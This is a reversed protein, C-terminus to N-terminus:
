VSEWASRKASVTSKKSSRDPAGPGAEKGFPMDDEKVLKRRDTNESELEVKITLMRSVSERKINVAKALEYLAEKKKNAASHEATGVAKAKNTESSMFAWLYMLFAYLNAFYGLQFDIKTLVEPDNLTGHPVPVLAAEGVKELLENFPMKSVTKITLNEIM